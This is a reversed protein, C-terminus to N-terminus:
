EELTRNIIEIRKNYKKLNPRIENLYEYKKIAEQPDTKELAKAEAEIKKIENRFIQNECSSIRQRLKGTYLWDREGHEKTLQEIEEKKVVLTLEEAERYIEIAEELQNLDNEYYLGKGTLAIIKREDDSIIDIYEWTLKFLDVGRYLFDTPNNKLYEKKEANFEKFEIKSEESGYYDKDWLKNFLAREKEKLNEFDNPAKKATNENQNQIISDNQPKSKEKFIRNFLGMIDSVM